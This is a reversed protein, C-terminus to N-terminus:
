SGDPAPIEAIVEDPRQEAQEILRVPVDAAALGKGKQRPAFDADVTGRWSTRLAVVRCFPTTAADASWELGVSRGRALQVDGALDAVKVLGAPAVNAAVRLEAEAGGATAILVTAAEAALVHTVAVWDPEWENRFYLETLQRALLRPERMRTEGLRAFVAFVSRERSFALHAGSDADALVQFLPGTRGSAKFTVEVSGDSDYALHDRYPSAQTANRVGLADLSGMQLLQGSVVKCIDGVAHRTSLPWTTWWGSGLAGDLCARYVASANGM